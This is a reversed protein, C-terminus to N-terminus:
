KKLSDISADIVRLSIEQYMKMSELLVLKEDKASDKSLTGYIKLLDNFANNCNVVIQENYANM